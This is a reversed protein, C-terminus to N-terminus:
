SGKNGEDNNVPKNNMVRDAYEKPTEVKPPEEPPRIGATGSLLQDARLKEYRDNEARVEDRVKELAERESRVQDLLPNQSVPEEPQEEKKSKEDSM